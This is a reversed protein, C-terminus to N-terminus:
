ACLRVVNFVPSYCDDAVSDGIYVLATCTQLVSVDANHCMLESTDNISCTVPTVGEAATDSPMVFEFSSFSSGTDATAELGGALLQGAAGLSFISADGISTGFFGIM